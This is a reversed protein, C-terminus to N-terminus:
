SSARLENLVPLTDGPRDLWVMHGCGDFEHVVSDPVLAATRYGHVPPIPSQAGLIFAIPLKVLPLGIELTKAALHARISEFTQAYCDVSMDLDPMPPATAPEAFYGPWALRLM